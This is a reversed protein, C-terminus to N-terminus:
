GVLNIKTKKVKKADGSLSKRFAQFQEKADKLLRYEETGAMNEALADIQDPDMDLAETINGIQGELCEKLRKAAELGEERDEPNKSELKGKLSMLEDMTEVLFGQIKEPSLSSLDGLTEKLTETYEKHMNRIGRQM